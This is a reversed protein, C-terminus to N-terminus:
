KKKGQQAFFVEHGQGPQQQGNKQENVGCAVAQDKFVFSREGRIRLMQMRKPREECRRFCEQQCGQQEVDARAEAKGQGVAGGFATGIRYAARRSTQPAPGTADHGEAPGGHQGEKKEMKGCHAKGILGQRGGFFDTLCQAIGQKCETISDAKGREAQVDAVTEPRQGLTQAETMGAPVPQEFARCPQGGKAADANECTNQAANEQLAIKLTM